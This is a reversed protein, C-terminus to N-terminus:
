LIFSDNLDSVASESESLDTIISPVSAKPPIKSVYTSPFWGREGNCLGDWWGSPEKHLVEIVDGVCFTLHDSADSSYDFLAIVKKM